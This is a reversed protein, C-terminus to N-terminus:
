RLLAHVLLQGVDPVLEALSRAEAAVVALLLSSRSTKLAVAMSSKQQRKKGKKEYADPTM